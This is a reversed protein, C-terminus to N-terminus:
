RTLWSIQLNLTSCVQFEVRTPPSYELRSKHTKVFGAASADFALHKLHDSSALGKHLLRRASNHKPHTPLESSPQVRRQNSVLACFRARSVALGILSCLERACQTLLWNRCGVGNKVVKQTQFLAHTAEAGGGTLWMVSKKKSKATM